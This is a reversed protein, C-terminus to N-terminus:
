HHGGHRGGIDTSGPDASESTGGADHHHHCLSSHPEVGPRLLPNSDSPGSWVHDIAPNPIEDPKSGPSERGFGSSRLYLVYATLGGIFMVSAIVPVFEM